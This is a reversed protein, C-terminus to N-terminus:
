HSGTEYVYITSANDEPMFYARIGTGAAEFWAPNHTMDLGATTWLSPLTVLKAVEARVM